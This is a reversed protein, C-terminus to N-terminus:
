CDPWIGRLRAAPRPLSLGAGRAAAHRARPTRPLRVPLPHFVSATRPAVRRPARLLGRGTRGADRRGPHRSLLRRLRESRLRARAWWTFPSPRCGARPTACSSGAPFLAGPRSTNPCFFDLELGALSLRSVFGSVLLTSLMAALICSSCTTPPPSRPWGWWCSSARCLGGGGADRAPAM